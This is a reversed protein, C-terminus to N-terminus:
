PWPRNTGLNASKERAKKTCDTPRFYDFLIKFNSDAPRYANFFYFLHGKIKRDAKFDDCREAMRPILQGHGLTCIHQM